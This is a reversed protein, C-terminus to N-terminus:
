RGVKVETALGVRTVGAERIVDLVDVLEQYSIAADGQVNVSIDPHESLKDGLQELTVGPTGAQPGAEHGDGCAVFLLAAAVTLPVVVTAPRDALTPSM